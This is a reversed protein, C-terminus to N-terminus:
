LKSIDIKEVRTYTIIGEYGRRKLEEMMERPTFQSLRLNRSNIADVAQQQLMKRKEKGEYIHQKHCESCCSTVGIGNKYFESVPKEKGCFKCVKTEEM